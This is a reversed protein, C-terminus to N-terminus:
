CTRSRCPAAHASTRLSAPFSKHTWSAGVQPNPLTRVMDLFASRYNPFTNEPTVFEALRDQPIKPFRHHVSHYGINFLNYVSLWSL